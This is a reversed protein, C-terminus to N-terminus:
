ANRLMSFVISMDTQHGRLTSYFREKKVLQCDVPLNEKGDIGGKQGIRSVNYSSEKKPPLDIRYPM